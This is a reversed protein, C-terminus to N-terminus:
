FNAVPPLAGAIAGVGANLRFRIKFILRFERDCLASGRLEGGLFDTMGIAHGGRGGACCEHAFVMGGFIGGDYEGVM